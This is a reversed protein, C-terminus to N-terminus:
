YFCEVDYVYWAQWDEDYCYTLLCDSPFEWEEYCYEEYIYVLQYDSEEVIITTAPVHKVECGILSALLAITM